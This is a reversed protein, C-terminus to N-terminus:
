VINKNYRAKLTPVINVANWILSGIIFFINIVPNYRQLRKISPHNKKLFINCGQNVLSFIMRFNMLLSQNKISFRIANRYSYWTPLFKNNKSSGEGYHWVPVNTEVISFTSKQVRYFWDNDEGYMYYDEDLYGIEKVLNANIIFLCGAVAEVFQISISNLEIKNSFFQTENEKLVELFGVIGIKRDKDFITLSLELWNNLVQIDSNFIAIFNAENQMAFKIGTNVGGAFGKKGNNHLIIVNDYKKKVFAVSDDTSDSDVLVVKYNQYNSKALSALSYKLHELGNKNPIIVYVCNDNNAM